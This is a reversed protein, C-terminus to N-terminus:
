MELIKSITTLSYFTCTASSKKTGMTRLEKGIYNSCNLSNRVNSLALFPTYSSSEGGTDLFFIPHIMISGLNRM